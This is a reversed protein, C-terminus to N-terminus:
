NCSAAAAPTAASGAQRASSRAYERQLTTHVRADYSVDLGLAREFRTIAAIDAAPDGDVTIVAHSLWVIGGGARRVIAATGTFKRGDIGLNFAGDCYSGRCAGTTPDLGLRRCARVILAVLPQYAHKIDTAGPPAHMALSVNLIGPRHVVTTGGSARVHVPWGGKESIDAAAAFDPHRALRRTTVLCQQNTWLRVLPATTATALLRDDAAIADVGSGPAIPASRDIADALRRMLPSVMM